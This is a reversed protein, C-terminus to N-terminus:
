SGGLARLDVEVIPGKYNKKAWLLYYLVSFIVVAGTVLVSFNMNLDTVPNVSPWFSFFILLILYACAIVNNVIGFIGKLRWPGWRLKAGNAFSMESADDGM